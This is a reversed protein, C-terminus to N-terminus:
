KKAKQKVPAPIRIYFVGHESKIVLPNGQMLSNIDLEYSGKEHIIVNEVGIEMTLPKNKGEAINQGGAIESAEHLIENRKKEQKIEKEMEPVSKVTAPGVSPKVEIVAKETQMVAKEISIPAIEAIEELQERNEAILDKGERELMDMQDKISLQEPRVFMFIRSGCTCGRFLQEAGASYLIGCRACKHPM